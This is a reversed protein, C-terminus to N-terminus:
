PTSILSSSIPPAHLVCPYIFFSYLIKTPFRSPFLDSPLRPRLHSSLMIFHIFYPSFTHIPNMQSLIPVLPLSRHVRYHVKPNWLLLPIEQTAARSNAEWSPSQQMSSPRQRTKQKTKLVRHDQCTPVMATVRMGSRQLKRSQHTARWHSDHCNRWKACEVATLVTLPFRPVDKRRDCHVLYLCSAGSLQLCRCSIHSTDSWLQPTAGSDPTHVAIEPMWAVGRYTFSTYLIDTRGCPEMLQLAPWEREQRDVRWWTEDHM